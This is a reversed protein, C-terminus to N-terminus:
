AVLYNGFLVLAFLKFQDWYLQMGILLIMFPVDMYNIGSLGMSFWPGLPFLDDLALYNIGLEKTVGCTSACDYTSSSGCYLQFATSSCYHNVIIAARSSTFLSKRNFNCKTDTLQNGKLIYEM